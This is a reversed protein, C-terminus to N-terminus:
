RNFPFEMVESVVTNIYYTQGLIIIFAGLVSFIDPVTDSMSLRMVRCTLSRSLFAVGRNTLDKDWLLAKDNVATFGPLSGPWFSDKIGSVYGGFWRIEYLRVREFRHKDRAPVTTNLLTM